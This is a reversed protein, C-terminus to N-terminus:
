HSVTRQAAQLPPGVYPLVHIHGSRSVTSEREKAEVTASSSHKGASVSSRDALKGHTSTLRAPLRAPM